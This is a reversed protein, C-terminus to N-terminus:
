EHDAACPEGREDAVVEAGRREEDRPEDAVHPQEAGDRDLLKRSESREGREARGQVVAQLAQIQLVAPDKPIGAHRVMQPPQRSQHM